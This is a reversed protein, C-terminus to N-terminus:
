VLYTIDEGLYGILLNRMRESPIYIKISKDNRIASRFIWQLMESLAFGDQDMQINKKAFFKAFFPDAYRNIMYAVVDRDGWENVSRTNVPIWYRGSINKSAMDPLDDKYCTWLRQNAKSSTVNIFYNIMNKKLTPILSTSRDYWGKSLATAHYHGNGDHYCSGIKNLSPIDLIAINKRVAEKWKTEIPNYGNGVTLEIGQDNLHYLDYPIDFYRCYYSQLQMSFQHTFIYIEDFVNPQFVESPFVWLLLTGDVYYLMKRDALSKLHEYHSLGYIEDFWEISYDERVRIYEKAILSNIDDRTTKEAIIREAGEKISWKAVTQFVEDLYLSYNRSLLAEIIEDTMRSFLAHTSVINADSLILNLFDQSKSGQGRVVDPQVFNKEPCYKIIRDVESLFPTIYVIRRDTPTNNINKIAWTTKGSGPPADIVKIKNNM